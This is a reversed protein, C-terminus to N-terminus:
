TWTVWVPMLEHLVTSSFATCTAIFASMIGKIHDPIWDTLRAPPHFLHNSFSANLALGGLGFLISLFGIFHFGQQFFIIVGYLLFCVHATVSMYFVAKDFLNPANGKVFHMARVGHILSYGSFIAVMFLFPKHIVVSLIGGSTCAAAMGYVFSTGLLRHQKTGKKLIVTIAGVILGLIGCAIHVILLIQEISEM